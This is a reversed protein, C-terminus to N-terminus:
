VGELGIFLGQNHILPGDYGDSLEDIRYVCRILICIISLSLFALFIRFRTDQAPGKEDRSVKGNRFDRRYRLGFDLAMLIFVTLTFVQFSLGALAIDVGAQNSGTSSSSMAGGTAQLALSVIDCPIFIWYYLQPPFRCSSRSLYIVIKYLTLYIAASYFAPALTICVIQIMFGPFSFPNNWMLVRGAYGIIESICGLIMACMFGWTRWKVGQYIHIILSIGFFVMFSVSSSLTPRYGYLSTSVDCTALTCTEDAGYTTLPVAM